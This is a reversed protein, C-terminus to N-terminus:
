CFSGCGRALVGLVRLNCQPAANSIRGWREDVHHLMSFRSARALRTGAARRSSSTVPLSIPLAAPASRNRVERSALLLDFPRPYGSGRRPPIAAIAIRPMPPEPLPSGTCARRVIVVFAHVPWSRPTPAMQGQNPEDPPVAPLSRLSLAQAPAPRPGSRRTCGRCISLAAEQPMHEAAHANGGGKQSAVKPGTEFM